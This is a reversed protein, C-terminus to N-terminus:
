VEDKNELYREGDALYFILLATSLECCIKSLVKQPIEFGDDWNYYEMYTHLIKAEEISDM